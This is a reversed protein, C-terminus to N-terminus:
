AGESGVRPGPPGPEGLRVRMKYADPLVVVREAAAILRALERESGLRIVGLTDLKEEDWGCGVFVHETDDWPPNVSLV